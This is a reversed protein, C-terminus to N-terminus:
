DWKLTINLSHMMDVTGYALITFKIALSTVQKSLVMIEVHGSPLSVKWIPGINFAAALRAYHLGRGKNQTPHKKALFCNHCFRCGQCSRTLNIATTPVRGNVWQESINLNGPNGLKFTAPHEWWWTLYIISCGSLTRLEIVPLYKSPSRTQWLLFRDQRLRYSNSFLRLVISFLFADSLDATGLFSALVRDLCWHFRM